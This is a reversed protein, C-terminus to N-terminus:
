LLSQWMADNLVLAGAPLRGLDFDVILDRALAPEANPRLGCTQALLGVVREASAGRERLWSLRTDGHRKALRRGDPGVVLPVHAFEPPPWNFFRYLELQRLASPLLDDGRLVETVGMAHDDVVVALQYAPAGDGKAVVFDGLLKAVSATQPGAVRDVFTVPEDSARFRWVFTQGALAASDTTRRGACTRPYIPGEQGAHPASSAAAVDSRTCTCPYVQEARKLQELAAHYLELRETQVYPAHPGGVDPGEDWDIGLWHLDDLAQQAAWPKVRPSDIDEIRTIM